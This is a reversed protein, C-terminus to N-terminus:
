LLNLNLKPIPRIKPIFFDQKEFNSIGKIELPTGDATSVFYPLSNKSFEFLSCASPTM